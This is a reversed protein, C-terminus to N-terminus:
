SEKVCIKSAIGDGVAIVINVVLKVIPNKVILLVLTLGKKSNGWHDCFVDKAKEGNSETAELDISVNELNTLKELNM